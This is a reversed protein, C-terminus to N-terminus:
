NTNTWGTVMNRHLRLPTVLISYVYTGSMIVLVTCTSMFPTVKDEHDTLVFELPTM